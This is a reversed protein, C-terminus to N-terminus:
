RLALWAYAAAYLTCQTLLLAYGLRLLPTTLVPRVNLWPLVCLRGGWFLATAGCLARALPAGAVLTPAFVLSFLGLVAITAGISFNQAIAFRRHIPPLAALNKDWDPPIPTFCAFTLTVFHFAGALRVALIWLADPAPM